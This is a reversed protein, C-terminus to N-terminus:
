QGAPILNNCSPQPVNDNAAAAVKGLLDVYSLGVYYAGFFPSQIGTIHAQNSDIANIPYPGATGGGSNVNGWCIVPNNPQNTRACISYYGNSIVDTIYNVPTGGASVLINNPTSVNSMTTPAGALGYSNSGWCLATADSMVACFTDAPGVSLKTATATGTINTVKNPYLNSGNQFTTSSPQALQGYNNSGWCWISKDATLRACTADYGVRVEAAGTFTGLGPGSKVQSAYTLPGIDGTGLQGQGNYGWCYIDGTTNVACFNASGNTGGAIQVMNSLHM